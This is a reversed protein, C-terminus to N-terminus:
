ILGTGDPQEFSENKYPRTEKPKKGIKKHLVPNETWIQLNKGGEKALDAISGVQETGPILPNPSPNYAFVRSTAM